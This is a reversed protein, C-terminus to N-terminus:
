LLLLSLLLLISSLCFSMASYVAINFSSYVELGIGLGIGLSGAFYVVILLLSYVGSPFCLLGEVLELLPVRSVLVPLLLSLTVTPLSFIGWDGVDLLAHKASYM